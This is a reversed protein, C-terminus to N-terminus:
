PRSAAMRQAYELNRQYEVIKQQARDYEPHDLPVIKLLEIAETWQSAVTEWDAKTQATQTLEAASTAKNIALRWGQAPDVGGTEPFTQEPPKPTAPATPKTPPQPAPTATPQPAPKRLLFWVGVGLLLVVLVIAAIPLLKKIKDSSKQESEEGPTEEEILEDEEMDTPEDDDLPEGDETEESVEQYEDEDLPQAASLDVEESWQGAKTGKMRGYIRMKPISEISQSIIEESVLPVLEQRDPVKDSELLIHLCDSEIKIKTTIGLPQLSQNLLQAISQSNPQPM